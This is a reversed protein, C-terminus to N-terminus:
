RVSVPVAADVAAELTAGDAPLGNELKANVLQRESGEL